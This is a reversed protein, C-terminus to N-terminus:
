NRMIEIITYTVYRKWELTTQLNDSNIISYLILRFELSYKFDNKFYMHKLLYHPSVKNVLELKKRFLDLM